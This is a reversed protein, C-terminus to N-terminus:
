EHLSGIVAFVANQKLESLDDGDSPPFKLLSGNVTGGYPEREFSQDAYRASLLWFKGAFGKVCVENDARFLLTKPNLRKIVCGRVENGGDPGSFDWPESVILKSM